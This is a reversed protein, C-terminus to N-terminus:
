LVCKEASEVALYTALLAVAKGMSTNLAACEIGYEGEVARVQVQMAEICQKLQAFTAPIAQREVAPTKDSTMVANTMDCLTTTSLDLAYAQTDRTSPCHMFALPGITRNAFLSEKIQEMQEHVDSLVCYVCDVVATFREQWGTEMGSFIYDRFAVKKETLNKKKSITFLKGVM